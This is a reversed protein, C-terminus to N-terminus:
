DQEVERDEELLARMQNSMDEDMGRNTALRLAERGLARYLVAIEGDSDAINKLHAEVTGIDGRAIPGTLAKEVGLEAVNELTARMLPLYPELDGGVREVLSSLAVLYNSAVAAAAHYRTRRQEDVWFVRGDLSSVFAEAWSRLSPACTVGFWSDPIRKIGTEVDPVSQLVHAAITFAGKEELPKLVQVGTSGSAHVVVTGAAVSSALKEAAAALSDDPVSILIADAGEIIEASDTSSQCGLYSVARDLAGLSRGSCGIIRHGKRQLLAGFSVGVRGAGVIAFRMETRFTPPSDTM